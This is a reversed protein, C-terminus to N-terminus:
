GGVWVWLDGGGEDERIRLLAELLEVRREL